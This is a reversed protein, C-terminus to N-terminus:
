PRKWSSRTWAPWCRARVMAQRAVEDLLSEHHQQEYLAPDRGGGQLDPVPVVRIRQGSSLVDELTAPDACHLRVGKASDPLHLLRNRTTLDLLKRQWLTLKGAPGDRSENVEVDFGPLLPAEELGEVADPNAQPGGGVGQELVLALPRIRQMRARHLDIAMIFQEDDLQREAAAVAQNFSPVPARTALTTEFVLMEKLDLRKRLASADDTLLQSFEQPQLWVGAFAHGKTMILLANLGAQELAAAFLLATDLCTALGNELILSPPRIKQGQQEFSAPPLAYSLRLSCVASWIASTLEWVRTRSRGEYGDIGDKKGARRLVECAGKLVRDVAPDNPMCFAALLEPMASLGGWETRALLQTPYRQEVLLQDGHCLRLLVEAGLSESLGALYGANFTIDRETIGLRDGPNLRDLHWTRTEVFAPDTGLTLVLDQYSHEGENAISLERLLPVSNQHSAFGIKRAILAEINISM